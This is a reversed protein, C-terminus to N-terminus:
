YPKAASAGGPVTFGIDIIQEYYTGESLVSRLRLDGRDMGELSTPAYIIDSSNTLHCYVQAASLDMLSQSCTISPRNNNNQTPNFYDNLRSYQNESPISDGPFM